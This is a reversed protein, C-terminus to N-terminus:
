VRGFQKEIFKKTISVFVPRGHPCYKIDPNDLLTKVLFCIEEPSSAKGGKIACRCAINHYLWDLKKTDLCKKNDKIYNAIECVSNPIEEVNMYMPASRVIVSGSGFDNIEYGLKSIIDLNEVIASYEDKEMTVVCPELLMQSEKGSDNKKLKEFIIREHAAHKDVLIMEKQYQAIIYCDFVEGIIKIDNESFNKLLTLSKEIDRSKNCVPESFNVSIEKIKPPAQFEKSEKFEGQYVKDISKTKNFELKESIMSRNGYSVCPKSVSVEKKKQIENFNSQVVNKPKENKSVSFDKVTNNLIINRDNTKLSNQLPTSKVEFHSFSDNMRMTESTAGFGSSNNVFMLASKVAYYVAEFVSKENSFKIETKAPHVNVDVTEPPVDIYLVCYPFKGVMISNKFGEELASSGIKSKVFRKNVFFNQMSRSSKSCTPKSIFGTIKIHNLEYDVPIMGKFFDKGYVSYIASSIKKDGPTYLVEKGERIFKFSIEPHSLALKDIVSACTNAEIVDKKLFKMRAPTNYFMDRVTISTGDSCGYDETKGSVGADIYFRTGELEERSKTIVEVRSVSCISALAEGRFGLSSIENLDEANKLKSTAHRLFANKVDDRYIGSGNDSVKILKIGGCKIEAIIRTAGSDISNELLEKLVSAPREVVEGAAILQATQKNLINIKKM